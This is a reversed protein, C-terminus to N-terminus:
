KGIISTDAFLGLPSRPIANGYLLELSRLVIYIISFRRSLGARLGGLYWGTYGPGVYEM